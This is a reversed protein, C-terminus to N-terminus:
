SLFFYGGYFLIFIASFVLDFISMSEEKHTKRYQHKAFVITYTQDSSSLSSIEKIKHCVKCEFDGHSKLDPMLAGCGSCFASEIFAKESHNWSSM